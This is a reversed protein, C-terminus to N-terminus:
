LGIMQGIRAALMEADRKTRLHRAIGRTRGDRMVAKVAHYARNGTTAGMRHEVRVIESAPFTRRPLGLGLWTRRVTLSQRNATITTRGLLLDIAFLVFIAAFGGFLVLVIMPAGFSRFLALAGYWVAFFVVYGIWDAASGSPRVVIEDSGLTIERPPQWSAPSHPVDAFENREATGFVPLEFTAQYDIGPVDATAYLRWSISDSPSSVDCQACDFPIDFRFPVRLGNPAPMVGHTITQEDQWLISEHVSRNKGSGTVTRRVNALRVAFGAPPAEHLRVDLEGRLSSGLPIPSRDIRCLSLGYKHRRLAHHISLLLMGLGSIPFAAMLITKADMPWEWRVVFWLPLSMLNWLITFGWLCWGGADLSERVARETWDRRWLWPENPHQARLRPGEGWRIPM